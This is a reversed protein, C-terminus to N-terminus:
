PVMTILNSFRWWISGLGLVESGHISSEIKYAKGVIYINKKEAFLCLILLLAYSVIFHSQETYLFASVKGWFLYKKKKKENSTRLFDGFKRPGSFLHFSFM